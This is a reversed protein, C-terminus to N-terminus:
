TYRGHRARVELVYISMNSTHLDASDTCYRLTWIQCILYYDSGSRRRSGLGVASCQWQWWAKAKRRRPITLMASYGLQVLTVMAESGLGQVAAVPLVANLAAQIRTDHFRAHLVNWDGRWCRILIVFSTALTNGWSSMLTHELSSDPINSPGSLVGIGYNIQTKPTVHLPWEASGKDLSSAYRRSDGPHFTSGDDSTGLGMTEPTSRRQVTELEAGPRAQALIHHSPFGSPTGKNFVKTNALARSPNM